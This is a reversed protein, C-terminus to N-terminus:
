VVSLSGTSQNLVWGTNAINCMLIIADYRATSSISGTVGTTSSVFNTYITQGSNQAIKWLGTGSGQVAVLTGVGATAPLTFTVLTGGNNSLYGNGGVMAQTSTVTNNWLLSYPALAQFSPATGATNAMFVYGATGTVTSVKGSSDTILAGETFGTFVTGSSGTTITLGTTSTANGIVISTAITETGINLAGGDSLISLPTNNTNISNNYKTM